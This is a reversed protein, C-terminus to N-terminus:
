LKETKPKKIETLSKIILQDVFFGARLGNKNCHKKLLAHAQESINIVTRKM